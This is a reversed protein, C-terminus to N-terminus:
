SVRPCYERIMKELDVIKYPKTMLGTMGAQRARASAGQTVDATVAMITVPERKSRISAEFIREAAEYGDMNPMWLDMLVVDIAKERRLGMQRVAEAGDYAEYVDTYGLKSLMTVLLKRNIKNDEAVLFTLPQSTALHRDFQPQDLSNHRSTHPRHYQPQENPVTDKYAEPSRVTSRPVRREQLHHSQSVSGRSKPRPSDFPLPTDFIPSFAGSSPPPTRALPTNSVSREDTSTIPLKIEFESGKNPGSTDSRVCRLDGGMKRVLGKAVLLGLGLGDQQRTLSEDEQTFPKFLNPLFAQPIGSGTDTVIVSLFRGSPSLQAMLSIRGHETFKVANLFVCSLLKTIDRDDVLLVEPVDSRVSWEVLKSAVDGKSNRSRVEIREGLETTVAVASDPRGGVRLSENVISQVTERIVTQRLPPLPTPGSVPSSGRRAADNLPAYRDWVDQLPAIDAKPSPHSSSNTRAEDDERHGSFVQSLPFLGVPNLTRHKVAAAAETEDTSRSRRRKRTKQEDDLSIDSAKGRTSMLRQEGSSEGDELGGVPTEPVQMNLDYAHVVNDAAEVARRSSDQVVEINDRLTRFVDKVGPETEGEVAEQVTSHMVDLMGVVGQMPTRLEHSLSRAYPKLSQSVSIAEHPIVSGSITASTIPDPKAFGEGRVIRDTIMDELAHLLMELYNWSLKRRRAGEASWMLGFHAFCKGEQFLPVGIYAEAAFPFANPNDTIIDNLRDPIVFVKDHKMHACPAGYALYKYDRLLDKLGHGDNYHFALGMLCSGPQGIPPMEVASDEDNVLIRKAVFGYQADALGTLGDMLVAWFDHNNADRLAFKLRVLEEAAENEPAVFHQAVVTSFGDEGRHVILGSDYNPLCLSIREGMRPRDDGNTETPGEEEAM